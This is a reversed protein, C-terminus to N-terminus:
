ICMLSTENVKSAFFINVYIQTKLKLHMKSFVNNKEADVHYSLVSRYNESSKIKWNKM